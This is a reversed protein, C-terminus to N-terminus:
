LKSKSRAVNGKIAAPVNDRPGRSMFVIAFLDKRPQFFTIGESRKAKYTTALAAASVVEVDVTVGVLM